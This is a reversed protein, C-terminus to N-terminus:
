LDEPTTDGKESESAQRPPHPLESPRGATEAVIWDLFPKSGGGLPIVVIAPNDYGHRARIAAIVQEVRGKRTKIIAAVESDVHRVGEWRYISIMGPLLNVCAALGEDVLGGGIDEAAALTPFTAYVFVPADAEVPGLSSAPEGAMEPKDNAGM